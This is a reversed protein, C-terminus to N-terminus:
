LKPVQGQGHGWSGSCRALAEDWWPSASFLSSSEADDEGLSTGPLGRLALASLEVGLSCPLSLFARSAPLM